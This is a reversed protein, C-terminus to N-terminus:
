NLSYGRHSMEGAPTARKIKMEEVEVGEEVVRNPNSSSRQDQHIQEVQIRVTQIESHNKLNMQQDIQNTFTNTIRRTDYFEIFQENMIHHQAGAYRRYEEFISALNWGQLKRLCGIVTGTRHSGGGCMIMLPYLKPNLILKLAETVAEDTVEDITAAHSIGLEYFTVSDSLCERFSTSIPRPALWILSNLNLSILFKFSLENPEGSRYLYSEILGFNPPPILKLTAKRLRSPLNPLPDFLNPNSNFSTSTSTSTSTSNLIPNPSHHTPSSQLQISNSSSSDLQSQSTSSPSISQNILTIPHSKNLQHISPIQSPNSKISHNIISQKINPSSIALSNHTSKILKPRITTKESTQVSSSSSSSSSSTRQESLNM